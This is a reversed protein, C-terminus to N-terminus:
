ICDVCGGRLLSLLAIVVRRTLCRCWGLCMELGFYPCLIWVCMITVERRSAVCMSLLLDQLLVGTGVRGRGFM